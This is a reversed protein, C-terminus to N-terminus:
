PKAKARSEEFYGQIERRVEELPKPGLITGGTPPNTRWAEVTDASMLFQGYQWNFTRFLTQDRILFVLMEQQAVYGDTACYVNSGSWVKLEKRRPDGYIVEVVDLTALQSYTPHRIKKVERVRVRAIFDAGLTLERADMVRM